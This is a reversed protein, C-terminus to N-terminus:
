DSNFGFDKCHSGLGAHEAHGEGKRNKAEKDLDRQEETGAVSGEESHRLCM